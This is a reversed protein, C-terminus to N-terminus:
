MEQLKYLMTLFVSILASLESSAGVVTEMRIYMCLSCLRWTPELQVKAQMLHISM